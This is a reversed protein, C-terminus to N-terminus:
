WFVFQFHLEKLHRLEDLFFPFPIAPLLMPEEFVDLDEEIVNPHERDIGLGQRMIKWGIWIVLLLVLLLWLVPTSRVARM